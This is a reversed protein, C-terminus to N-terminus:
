LRVQENNVAPSHQAAILNYPQTLFAVARTSNETQPQCRAPLTGRAALENHFLSKQTTLLKIQDNGDIETVSAPPEQAALCGFSGV